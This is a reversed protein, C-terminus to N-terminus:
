DWLWRADYRKRNLLSMMRSCGFGVCAGEPGPRLLGVLEASDQM